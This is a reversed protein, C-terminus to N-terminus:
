DWPNLLKLIEKNVNVDDCTYEVPMKENHHFAPSSIIMM